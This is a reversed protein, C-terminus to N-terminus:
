LLESGPPAHVGPGPTHHPAPGPIRLFLWHLPALTPDALISLEPAEMEMSHPHAVELQTPANGM